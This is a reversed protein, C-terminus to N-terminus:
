QLWRCGDRERRAANGPPRAVEGKARMGPLTAPLLRIAALYAASQPPNM